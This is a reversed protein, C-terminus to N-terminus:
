LTEGPDLAKNLHQLEEELARIHSLLPLIFRAEIYGDFIFCEPDAPYPVFVKLYRHHDSATTTFGFIKLERRARENLHKISTM